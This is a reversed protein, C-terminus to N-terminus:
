RLASLHKVTREGEEELTVSSASVAIVSLFDVRDGPSVALTRPLRYTRRLNQDTVTMFAKDGLIGVLKLHRAISPKEPPTPLESLPLADGQTGPLIPPPPPPIAGPPPPPILGTKEGTHGEATPKRIRREGSSPFASYGSVPALPDTKGADQRAIPAAQERTTAPLVYASQTKLALKSAAFETSDVKKEEEAPMLHKPIEKLSDQLKAISSGIIGPEIPLNAPKAAGATPGPIVKSTTPNPTSAANAPVNRVARKPPLLNNLEETMRTEDNIHNIWLFTGGILLVGATVLLILRFLM